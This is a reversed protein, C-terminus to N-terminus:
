TFCYINKGDPLNSYVYDKIVADASQYWPDSSYVKVSVQEIPEKNIEKLVEEDDIFIRYTYEYPNEACDRLQEIRVKVYIKLPLPKTNSCFNKNGNVAACIHLSSSGPAFWIAPNRDGYRGINTGTTFHIVSTYPKNTDLIKVSFELRWAKSQKDLTNGSNFNFYM